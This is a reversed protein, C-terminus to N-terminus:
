ESVKKKLLVTTIGMLSIMIWAAEQIIAGIDGGDFSYVVAILVFVAGIANMIYYAVGEASLTGRELLFYALVALVAGFVGFFAMLSEM